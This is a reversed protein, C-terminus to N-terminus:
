RWRWKGRKIANIKRNLRNVELYLELKSGNNDIIIDCDEKTITMSSTDEPPLRKSADVWVIFDVLEQNKIEILEKKNRLGCYIGNEKFIDKALKAADPTNYESILNFWEERHNVRDEFCEELTKYGYKESLVPFVIKENCIESSSRFKFKYSTLFECVTDKGHRAYGTVIISVKIKRAM